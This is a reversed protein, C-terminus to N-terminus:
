KSGASATRDNSSDNSSEKALVEVLSICELLAKIKIQLAWLKDPSISDYQTRHSEISATYIKKLVEWFDGSVGSALVDKERDNLEM